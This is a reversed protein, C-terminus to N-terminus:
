CNVAEEPGLTQNTLISTRTYHETGASILSIIAPSTYELFSLYM